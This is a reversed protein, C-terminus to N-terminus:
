LAIEEFLLSNAAVSFEVYKLPWIRNGYTQNFNAVRQAFRLFAVSEKRVTQKAVLVPQIDSQRNPIYYQEIWDVYRQIQAINSENATEAKLEVPIAERQDNRFVSAMVDIRQMGVGCSVENGLWEIAAGDLLAADLSANIGRGLSQTIYAQLHAEFARGARYKALLRPLLNIEVQRGNYAPRERDRLIIRQTARDFSFSNDQFELVRRNNKNRILQALREAEYPTIMTNGRNGKLKRYILSWLMQHPARINRIEDLAEWETVGEAYVTGPEILARFTLSKGLRDKLYQQDDYNDLFVGDQRAQFLGYFKGETISQGANQQLYFVIDDGRRIRCGDAIMAVLNNESAPRLGTAATNNFDIAYDRAGTGVFLYELHLPFTTADVILIHTTM